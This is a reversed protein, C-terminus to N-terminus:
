GEGQLLIGFYNMECGKGERRYSHWQNAQEFTCAATPDTTMTSWYPLQHKECFSRLQRQNEAILDYHTNQERNIQYCKACICPGFGVHVGENNGCMEIFNELSKEIIHAQTGLRGAHIVGIAGSKSYCLIPLCDAARVVLHINKSHTWIADVGVVCQPTTSEVWAVQASHIQEMTIGQQVFAATNTTSIDISIVDSFERVYGFPHPTVMFM